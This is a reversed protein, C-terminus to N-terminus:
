KISDMLKDEDVDVDDNRTETVSRERYDTPVRDQVVVQKINEKQEEEKENVLYMDRHHHQKKEEEEERHKTKSKTIKEENTCRWWM